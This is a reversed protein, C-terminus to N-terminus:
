NENLLYKKIKKIIDDLKYNSKVLYNNAGLDLARQVDPTSELNTLILVPINKTQKDKKLEQLVEFGDKKPLILDLLILDPTEQKALYLGDEGNLAQKYALGAKKIHESILKQLHQEDEIILITNKNKSM